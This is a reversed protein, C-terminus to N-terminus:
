RRGLIVRTVLCAVAVGVITVGTVVLSANSSIIERALALVPQGRVAQLTDFKQKEDEALAFTHPEMNGRYM